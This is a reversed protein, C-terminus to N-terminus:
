SFCRSKGDNDKIACLSYKVTRKKKRSLKGNRRRLRLPLHDNYRVVKTAAAAILRHRADSRENSDMFHVSHLSLIHDEFLSFLLLLFFLTRDLQVTYKHIALTPMLFCIPAGEIFRRRNIQNMHADSLSFGFLGVTPSSPLGPM